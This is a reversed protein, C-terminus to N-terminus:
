ARREKRPKSRKGWRASAAREAQQRRKLRGKAYGCLTRDGERWRSLNSVCCSCVGVRRRRDVVLWSCGCGLGDDCAHLDDCACGICIAIPITM